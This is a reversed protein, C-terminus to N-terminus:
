QPKQKKKNIEEIQKKVTRVDEETLKDYGMEKIQGLQIKGTEDQKRNKLLEDRLLIYQPAAYVEDKLFETINKNEGVCGLIYKMMLPNSFYFTYVDLFRKDKRKFLEKGSYLKLANSGNMAFYYLEDNTAIKAM